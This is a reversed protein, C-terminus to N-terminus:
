ENEDETEEISETYARVAARAEEYSFGRRSLADAARRLDDKDSSGKLKKRLFLLAADDQGELEGLADDWMDRPIGRRYMEDRIRAQGYGKSSYHRVISEAFEKDNIAGINELWRAAMSAAEESEGKNVLRKEVEQTSFMRSGLIRVARAKAHSLELGEILQMYDDESLELGSFLGFDAIQAARVKVTKGNEFLVTFRDASKESRTISEITM